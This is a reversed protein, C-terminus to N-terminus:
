TEEPRLADELDEQPNEFRFESGLLIELPGSDTVPLELRTVVRYMEAEYDWHYDELFIEEDQAMGPDLTVNRQREPRERRIPVQYWAGEVCVELEVAADYFISYEEMNGITVKFSEADRGIVPSNVLTKIGEWECSLEQVKALEVTEGAFSVTEPFREEEPEAPDIGGSEAGLGSEQVTAEYSLGSDEDAPAESEPAAAPAASENGKAGSRSLLTMGGALLGGAVFLVLIGAAARNFGYVFEKRSIKRHGAKGKTRLLEEMNKKFSESFTHMRAIESEPPIFSMQEEMCADFADELLEEAQSKPHNKDRGQM